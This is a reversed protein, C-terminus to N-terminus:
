IKEKMMYERRIMQDIEPRLYIIQGKSIIETLELHNDLMKKLVYHPIGYVSNVFENLSKSKVYIPNDFYLVQEANLKHCLRLRVIIADSLDFPVSGVSIGVGPKKIQEVRSGFFNFINDTPFIGTIKEEEFLYIIHKHDPLLCPRICFDWYSQRREIMKADFHNCFDFFNDLNGIARAVELSHIMADRRTMVLQNRDYEREIWRKEKECGIHFRRGHLIDVNQSSVGACDSLQCEWNTPREGTLPCVKKIYEGEIVTQEFYEPGYYGNETM